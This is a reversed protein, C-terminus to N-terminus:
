ATREAINIEDHSANNYTIRITYLLTAVDFFSYDDVTPSIVTRTVKHGVKGVLFGNTSITGDIENHIQRLVNEESMNSTQKTTGNVM